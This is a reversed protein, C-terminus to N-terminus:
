LSKIINSAKRPNLFDYASVSVGWFKEIYATMLDISQEHTVYPARTPDYMTDTAERVIAPKFGWSVVKSIAFVRNLICLNAHVGLYVLKKIGRHAIINWLTQGEREDDIIGDENHIAILPTQRTWARRRSYGPVDCGADSADIPLPPYDHPVPTPMPVDSLKMVWDRSVSQNYYGSCDSPAHIITAGLARAASVTQNIFIALAGVRETASPCWHRDWMDVVIFAVDRAEWTEVWEQTTWHLRGTKQLSQSKLTVGIPLSIVASIFIISWSIFVLSIIVSFSFM